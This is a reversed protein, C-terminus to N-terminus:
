THKDYLISMACVSARRAREDTDEDVRIWVGLRTEMRVLRYLYIHIYIYACM